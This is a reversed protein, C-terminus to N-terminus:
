LARISGTVEGVESRRYKTAWRERASALSVSTAVLPFRAVCARRHRRGRSAASFLIHGAVPAEQLSVTGCVPGGPLPVLTARRFWAHIPFRRRSGRALHHSRRDWPM